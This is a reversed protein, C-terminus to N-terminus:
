TRYDANEAVYEPTLDSAYVVVSHRGRGLDIRITIPDRPQPYRLTPDCEAARLLDGLRTERAADLVIRGDRFVGHGCLDIRLDAVTSRVAGAAGVAAVIRGVNPDNGTIATKVLPSNAVARAVRDAITRSPAHVVRVEVFHRVGEGNRVIERSLPGLVAGLAGEFGDAGMRVGSCGNALLLCMDSTSQDGDITIANVTHGAVRRLVRQAVAPQVVADTLVFVLMTRMRPEIMGAGKAFALVRAGGIEIWAAKPYRDTTMIATAVELPGAEGLTMTKIREVMARVPLTWGIVGTSVPVLEPPQVGFRAAAAAAVTRGAALADTVAVNAVRNNVICGRARGRRLAERAIVVPAGVVRNTTTLGALITDPDASVIAALNLTQEGSQPREVPTFRTQACAFSFGTPM